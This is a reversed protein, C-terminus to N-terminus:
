PAVPAIMQQLALVIIALGGAVVVATLAATAQWSPEYRDSEIAHRVQRCRWGAWAGVATGLVLFVVGTVMFEHVAHVQAQRPSSQGTTIALQQLFLSMRALVFGLGILGLATRVWALFTRENALHDRTRNASGSSRTASREDPAM